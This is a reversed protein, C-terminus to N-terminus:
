AADLGGAEAFPSVHEETHLIQELIQGVNSAYQALRNMAAEREEEGDDGAGDKSEAEELEKGLTAVRRITGVVADIVLPRLSSVHRMIEDLGTGVISAMENLLCRSNPMAYRPHCFVALLSPFPNARKIAAAGDETLALASLVNPVAMILESSPPM